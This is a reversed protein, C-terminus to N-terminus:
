KALTVLRGELVVNAVIAGAVCRFQTASELDNHKTISRVDVVANAGVSNAQSQLAILASLFAVQCAVEDSKNAANTRRNSTYTGHDKAIAPHPQGKMYVPVQLLNEHGLGAQKALEVDLDHFTDRAAAPSAGLALLLAFSGARIALRKV